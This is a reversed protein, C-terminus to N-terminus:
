AFRWNALAQEIAELPPTLKIGTALLKDADLVCSSRRVRLGLKEESVFERSCTIGAKAWADVVNHTYIAGPQVVNYTGYPVGKDFCEWTARVFEDLQSVSNEVDLLRDYRRVKTLYNRPSDVENFPIRLRWVYTKEAGLLVEEGLAKTGSYWSCPGARFSFNPVDEETWPKGNNRGQYICGSGVHGWPINLHECATRIVGPLVANDSLCKAKDDECADVTPIGVYGAANIVWDARVWRLGRILEDPTVTEAREIYTAYPINKENFFKQYAKGVYGNHGILAIM